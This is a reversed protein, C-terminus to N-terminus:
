FFAPHTPVVLHMGHPITLSFAVTLLCVFYGEKDPLPSHCLWCLYITTAPCCVFWPTTPLFVRFWVFTTLPYFPLFVTMAPLINLTRATFLLVVVVMAVELPSDNCSCANLFFSLLPFSDFYCFFSLFSFSFFYPTYFPLCAGIPWDRRERYFGVKQQPYLVRKPM